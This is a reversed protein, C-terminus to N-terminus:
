QATAEAVPEIAIDMEIGEVDWTERYGDEVADFEAARVERAILDDHDAVLDAIRDDKIDLDLRIEAEIDLELDKRMEQVRRIVERTYGESEIDETLETDVYVVGSSGLAEFETAELGEPTETVIDVM